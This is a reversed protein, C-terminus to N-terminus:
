GRICESLVRRACMVSVRQARAHLACLECVRSMCWVGSKCVHRIFLRVCFCSLQRSDRSHSTGKAPIRHKNWPATCRACCLCLRGKPM